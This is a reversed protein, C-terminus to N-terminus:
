GLPLNQTVMFSGSSFVMRAALITSSPTRTILRVMAASIRTSSPRTAPTIAKFTRVPSIMTIRALDTMRLAPPVARNPNGAM